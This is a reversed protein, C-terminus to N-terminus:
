LNSGFSIEMFSSRTVDKFVLKELPDLKDWNANIETAWDTDGEAPKNLNLNPTQSSM